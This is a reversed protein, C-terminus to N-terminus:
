SARRMAGGAEVEGERGICIPQNLVLPVPLKLLRYLIALNNRFLQDFSVVSAHPNYDGFWWFWDSGECNGLHARAEAQEAKSLRGSAMVLDFSGKAACLLDWARNKAPDGIWTSFNGYVWSGATLKPISGASPHADSGLYDRFTTMRISPHDQLAAYLGSLFYFGNYPYYEWANEGDLIVSVVPDNGEPAQRLIAELQHVFHNVADSGYWTAYEFGIMDSLQEHRFFCTIGPAGEVRYPRFLYAKDESLESGRNAAVLSNVLVGEGSATWRCGHEAFLKLTETSLGGEAPWMGAPASGFLKKHSVAANDIHTAARTRGGPYSQAHPLAITPLSDQASHFDLLLPVIPHHYPTTSLEIRGEDALKKYRSIVGCVQEGILTFLQQRDDFDFGCGKSMLRPLLDHSRRLSEGTWVLHYWVLLDALYQGSLYSLSNEEPANLFLFIDLLRKYAPFPEIMKNHDGRFCSALVHQRDAEEIRDLDPHILLRLLPDRVKKQSFQQAYDELQDLLIPVFNVVARAGPHNELHWAMDTYDKIAHLYTWPLIFEGSLRDRYDPQHMHWCLILDLKRVASM